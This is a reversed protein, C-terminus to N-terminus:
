PSYSLPRFQLRIAEIQGHLLPDQFRCLRQPLDPCRAPVAREFIDAILGGDMARAGFEAYRLHIVRSIALPAVWSPQPGTIPVAGLGYQDLQLLPTRNYEFPRRPLVGTNLCIDANGASPREGLNAHPGLGQADLGSARSTFFGVRLRNPYASSAQDDALEPLTHGASDNIFRINEARIIERLRAAAQEATRLPRGQVAASGSVDCFDARNMEHLKLSDMLVLPQNPNADALLSFVTSGHGATDLNLRDYQSAAAEAVKDLRHAAIHAPSTFRDLAKWLAAPVRWSSSAEAIGRPVAHYYGKIRNRFRIARVPLTPFTDIVLLAEGTSHALRFEGPQYTREM